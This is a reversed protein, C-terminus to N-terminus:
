SLVIKQYRETAEQQGAECKHKITQFNNLLIEVVNGDLAGSDVMDNLVQKASDDDMSKRYPRDETIATFVDSVAMVRSGLSLNEGAIHFPYGTGDLKEHHHSAWKNITKFAPISELLHYTYYPHSRIINFENESLKGPNELIENSVALKGLDHLYGAIMMM